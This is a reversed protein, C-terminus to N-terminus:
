STKTDGMRHAAHLNQRERALREFLRTRFHDETIHVTRTTVRRFRQRLLELQGRATIKFRLTQKVALGYRLFTEAHTKEIDYIPLPTRALRMLAAREASSLQIPPM